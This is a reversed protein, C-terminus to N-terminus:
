NFLTAEQGVMSDAVKNSFFFHGVFAYIGSLGINSVVISYLFSEVIPAGFFLIQTIALLSGFILFYIPFM